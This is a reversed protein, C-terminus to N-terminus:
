TSDSLYFKFRGFSTDLYYYYYSCSWYYYYSLSRLSIVFLIQEIFYLLHIHIFLYFSTLTFWKLFSDRIDVSSYVYFDAGLGKVTKRRARRVPLFGQRTLRGSMRGWRIGDAGCNSLKWWECRYARHVDSSM